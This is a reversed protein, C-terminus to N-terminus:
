NKTRFVHIIHRIKYFWTHTYLKRRYILFGVMFNTMVGYAWYATNSFTHQGFSLLLFIGSIGACFWALADESDPNNWTKRITPSLVLMDILITPIIAHELGYIYAIAICWLALTICLYDFMRIRIHRILMWGIIAGIALIMSRIILPAITYDLPSESLFIMTNLAVMVCWITWSFAHPVVRGHLAHYLYPVIGFLYILLSISIFLLSFSHM